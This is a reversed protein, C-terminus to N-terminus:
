YGCVTTGQRQRVDSAAAADKVADAYLRAVAEPDLDEVKAAEAVSIDQYIAV